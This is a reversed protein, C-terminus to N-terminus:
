DQEARSKRMRVCGAYTTNRTKSLRAYNGVHAAFAPNVYTFFVHRAQLIEVLESWEERAQMLDAALSVLGAVALQMVVLVAHENQQKEEIGDNAGQPGDLLGAFQPFNLAFEATLSGREARQAFGGIDKQRFPQLFDDGFQAFLEFGDGAIRPQFVHLVGQRQDIAGQHLAQRHQHLSRQGIRSRCLEFRLEAEVGLEIQFAAHRDADVDGFADAFALRVLPGHQGPRQFGAAAVHFIAAIRLEM